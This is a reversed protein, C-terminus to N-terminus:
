CNSKSQRPVETNTIASQYLWPRNSLDGGSPRQVTAASSSASPASVTASVSPLLIVLVAAKYMKQLVIKQRKTIIYMYKLCLIITYSIIIIHVKSFQSM